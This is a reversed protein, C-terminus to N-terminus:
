EDEKDDIDQKAGCKPCYHYEDTLSIGWIKEGRFYIKSIPAYGCESCRIANGDEVWKM